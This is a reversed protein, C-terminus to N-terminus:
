KKFIIKKFTFNLIKTYKFYAIGANTTNQQIKKYKGKVPIKGEAM